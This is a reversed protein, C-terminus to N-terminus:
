KHDNRATVVLHRARFARPTLGVLRKFHKGFRGSSGYGVRAAIQKIPLPAGRLLHCASAIRRRHVHEMFTVGTVDSLLRSAHWRSLHLPQAITTLSIKHPHSRRIARLMMTVRPDSVRSRPRAFRREELASVCRAALTALDTHWTTSAIDSISLEVFAEALAPHQGAGARQATRAITHTVLYRALLREAIPQEAHMHRTLQRLTSRLVTTRDFSARM